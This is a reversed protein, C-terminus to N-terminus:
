VVGSQSAVARTIATEARTHHEAARAFECPAYSKPM